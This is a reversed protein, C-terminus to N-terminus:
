SCPSCPAAHQDTPTTEDPSGPPSSAGNPPISSPSESANKKATDVIDFHICAQLILQANLQTLVGRGCDELANLEDFGIRYNAALITAATRMAWDPSSKFDSRNFYDWVEGSLDWLSRYDAKVTGVSPRGRYVKFTQPLAGFQGGPGPSRALPITWDHGHDDHLTVGPITAFRELHHPTPPSTADYGLWAGGVERQSWTLSRRFSAPEAPFHRSVPAIVVGSAGGCGASVNSVSAHHPVSRVDALVDALDYRELAERSLQDDKVLEEFTISPLFYWFM